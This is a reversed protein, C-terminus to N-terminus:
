RRAGMKEDAFAAIAAAIEPLALVDDVAGTAIAAAPMGFHESSAEDQAMVRGGAAKVARAGDAGDTGAGSLVVALCNGDYAGALSALLVDAAPRAHHVPPGTDLRLRRDSTVLLHADPGAVYVWGDELVDDDEARKVRLETRRALLEPLMSRREPLLHVLVIVSACLGAELSGLVRTIADLGGASAVLAVAAPRGEPTHKM